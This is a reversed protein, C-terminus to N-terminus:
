LMLARWFALEVAFLAEIRCCVILSKWNGTFFACYMYRIDVVNVLPQMFEDYEFVCYDNHFEEIFPL